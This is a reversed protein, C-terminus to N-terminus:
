YNRLTTPLYILYQSEGLVAFETLHDLFATITNRVADVEAPIEQWQGPTPNWYHLKLSAEDIGEVDADDYEMTITFPEAFTTIPTGNAAAAEISFSQGLFRLGSSIPQGVIIKLSVTFPESAADPPFSMTTTIGITSSLTGGESPLVPASSALDLAFDVGTVAQAAQITIRDAQSADPTSGAASYWEDQLAPHTGICDAFTRVYISGAPVSTVTYSGEIDTCCFGTVHTWDPATSSLAVCADAIPTGSGEEYVHGSISGGQALTFDIGSIDSTVASVTVVDADDWNTKEQWYERMYTQDGGCRTDGRAWVKYDGYNIDRVQYEGQDDTCDYWWRHDSIREVGVTINALPTGDSQAVVTGSVTGGPYLVFDIDPVTQGSSVSVSRGEAVNPPDHPFVWWTGSIVPSQYHGNTDAHVGVFWGDDHFAEMWVNAAPAGGEYTVSGTIYSNAKLLHVDVDSTTQGALVPVAVADTWRAQQPYFARLYGSASVEVKYDDRPELGDVQYFGQANTQTDTITDNQSYIDIEVRANAIPIVGGEEYVHGSISGTQEPSALQSGVTVSSWGGIMILLALAPIALLVRDAKLNQITM